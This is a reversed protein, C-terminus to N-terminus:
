KLPIADYKLGPVFNISGEWPYELKRIKLSIRKIKRINRIEIVGPILTKEVKKFGSFNLKVPEGMEEGQAVASVVKLRKCDLIYHIKTGGVNSEKELTGNMCVEFKENIYDDPVFDGFLIPIISQDLGYKKFLDENSGYYLRRNIRDNVLVTDRSIYIRAVEIGTRSKLSLLYEGPFIYKLNLLGKETGESGTIEIDAKSIFFNQKTINKDEIKELDIESFSKGSNEIETKEANKFVLCSTLLSYGIVLILAIKPM